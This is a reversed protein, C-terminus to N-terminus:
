IIFPSWDETTYLLLRHMARTCATYFLKRESERQYTRSSADYILVADFEVGKALYAPLVLTGKEFTLTEKTILRLSEAGQEMLAEYAERSQAATKTIIAISDFGESRLEALDKLMQANRKVSNETISFSPKKGRRDFPVIEEGPLVSKTFEVIERTSRYSRVLRILSTEEEGYLRILPSDAEHLQTAQPFIAQGFDGLVTMRARPFLRKLFMFQFPSYDQGEDIFLHRVVTNTRTGEVLEKLYLFPTADEYFLENRSLKERTQRCIELWDHPVESEKTMSRYAAEDSFLQGYLGPVDIFMFRKVDRRLPKFHTKVIMRRLLDEEQMAFDFVNEEGVDPNRFDGYQEVYQQTFDFVVDERQYKKRVESYAEAYQDNDLYDLEDQVWHAEQEQRELSTLEQLLWDQLLVIRNALRIAPDYSYFQKKMQEATILERDRFSIGHFLMGETGLWQAYNTLAHLFDESAKYQMGKLRVEYQPSWESTLVYEIQEFPDELRMSNGLWYALYEQFTTQQMNEEGLEPLVTSVYSNFMPNPSFLVIQDAKLRDRHKYLLYAVRQLAASTKGSGAAGQVILMRSKDNRIIANQERQITAVISRMQNDAGKGLVQQLLEDGITLSTDFVNQLQGNRIQYQRKLTMEGTVLGGPTDYDAAGPSYDYYMSAIPTRWDYVLFNLGDADVFSSVGIYIQESLSLGNEQFDIRGFYPAPLLRKMSKWRQLRQQHSRERESLLAEQQKISYFTEEFDEDTSTNVTVEEWFRKRIDVVQDRLGTVEPDLEAIKLQLGETVRDLREQEKRWDEAHIM